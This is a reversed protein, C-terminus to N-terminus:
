PKPNPSLNPNLTLTLALTLTLTGRVVSENRETPSTSVLPTPPLALAATRPVCTFWLPVISNPQDCPLKCDDVSGQLCFDQYGPTAQIRDELAKIQAILEPRLM